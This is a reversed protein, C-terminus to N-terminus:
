EQDSDDSNYDLNTNTFSAVDIPEGKDIRDRAKFIIGIFKNFLKATKTVAPCLLSIIKQEISLNQFDCNVASIKGFLCNIKTSFTPCTLLHSEDDIIDYSCYRCLRASVPTSPTTYRGTEIHLRHASISIRSLWPRQNM